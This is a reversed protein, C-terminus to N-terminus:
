CQAQEVTWRRLVAPDLSVDLTPAGAAFKILHELLWQGGDESHDLTSVIISGKGVRAAAVADLLKPRTTMDHTYVLRILPCLSDAINLEGVPIARTFRRTLDYDLLDLACDHVTHGAGTAQDIRILPTQGWM